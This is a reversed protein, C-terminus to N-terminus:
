TKWSGFRACDGKVSNQEIVAAVVIWLRTLHPPAPILARSTPGGPHHRSPSPTRKGYVTGRNRESRALNRRKKRAQERPASLAEARAQSNRTPM